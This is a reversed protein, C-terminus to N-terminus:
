DDHKCHVYVHGLITDGLHVLAISEDLEEALFVGVISYLDHVHDLKVALGNAHVLRRRM